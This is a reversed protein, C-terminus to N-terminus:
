LNLMGQYKIICMVCLFNLGVKRMNVHQNKFIYKSLMIGRGGVGRLDVGLKRGLWSHKGGFINLDFKPQEFVRPYLSNIPAHNSLRWSDVVLLPPM